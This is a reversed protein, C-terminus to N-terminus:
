DALQDKPRYGMRAVDLLSDIGLKMMVHSRHIDVTKRSLGLKL